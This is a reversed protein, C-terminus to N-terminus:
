WNPWPEYELFFLFVASICDVLAEMISIVTKPLKPDKFLGSFKKVLNEQVFHTHAMNLSLVVTTKLCFIYSLMLFFVTKLWKTWNQGIQPIGPYGRSRFLIKLIKSDNNKGIQGHGM